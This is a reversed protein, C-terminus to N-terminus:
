ENIKTVAQKLAYIAILLTASGILIASAKNKSKVGMSIFKVASAGVFLSGIIVSADVVKGITNM